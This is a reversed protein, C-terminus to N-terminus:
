NSCNICHALCPQCQSQNLFQGDPCTQSTNMILNGANGNNITSNTITVCNQLTNNYALGAACVGCTGSINM